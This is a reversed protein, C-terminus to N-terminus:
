MVLAEICGNSFEKAFSKNSLIIIAFLSSVLIVATASATSNSALRFVWGILIALVITAPLVELRRFECVIDKLFIARIGHLVKM